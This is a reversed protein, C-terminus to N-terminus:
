IFPPARLGQISPICAPHLKELYFSLIRAKFELTLFATVISIMTFLLVCFTYLPSIGSDAKDPSISCFNTVCGSDCAQQSLPIIANTGEEIPAYDHADSCCLEETEDHLCLIDHHHHHPMVSAALMVMCVAILCWAIIRRRKM